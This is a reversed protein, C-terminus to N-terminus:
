LPTVFFYCTPMIMAITIPGVHRQVRKTCPVFFPSIHRAFWMSLISLVPSFFHIYTLWDSFSIVTYQIKINKRGHM